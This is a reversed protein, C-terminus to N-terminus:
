FIKGSYRVEELKQFDYTKLEEMSINAIASEHIMLNSSDGAHVVILPLGKAYAYGCEWATGTDSYNGHYVALVISSRDIADRDLEFTARSWESSMYEHELDDHLRPCYMELGRGELIREVETMTNLEEENFFPGAIYIM